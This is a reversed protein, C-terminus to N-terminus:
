GRTVDPAGRAKDSATIVWSSCEPLRARKASGATPQPVSGSSCQLADDAVALVGGVPPVGVVLHAAGREDRDVGFEGLHDSGQLLNHGVLEVIRL